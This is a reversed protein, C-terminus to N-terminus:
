PSYVATRHTFQLTQVVQQSVLTRACVSLCHLVHQTAWYACLATHTASGYTITLVSCYPSHVASCMSLPGDDTVKFDRLGLRRQWWGKGTLVYRVCGCVRAYRAPVLLLCESVERYSDGYVCRRLIGRTCVTFSLFRVPPLLFHEGAPVGRTRHGRREPQDPEGGGAGACDWRGDSTM